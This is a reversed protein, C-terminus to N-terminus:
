QYISINNHFNKKHELCFECNCEEEDQANCKICYKLKKKSAETDYIITFLNNHICKIRRRQIQRQEQRKVNNNNNNKKNIQKNPDINFNLKVNSYDHLNENLDFDQEQEQEQEQQYQNFKNEIFGKYFFYSVFFILLFEELM